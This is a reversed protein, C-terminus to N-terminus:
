VLAGMWTPLLTLPGSRGFVLPGSLSSAGLELALTVEGYWAGMVWLMLSLSLARVLSCPLAKGGKVKFPGGKSIGHACSALPLM